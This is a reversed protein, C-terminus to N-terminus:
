AAVAGVTLRHGFVAVAEALRDLGTPHDPDLIRRTEKENVALREALGVKSLGSRRWLVYLSAKAALAPAVAIRHLGATPHSTAPPPELDMGFHIRGRIAADLAHAMEHLARAEDDGAEIADPMAEAYAGISGDAERRLEVAYTWDFDM